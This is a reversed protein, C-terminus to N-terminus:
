KISKYYKDLLNKCEKAIQYSLDPPVANGVQECRQTHSGFFKYDLPFGTITSAERVTICRNEFLHIPFNSHGPVLTPSCKKSDLRMTSGRSYFKSIKLEKPLIDIKKALNEGEKVYKFREVTKSSHMMPLNDKDDISYDIKFLAEGVTKFDEDKTYIPEPYNFNINIDKRVAVIIIRDRKTSSGYWASNLIKTYVKYGIDDYMRLIDDKVSILYKEKKLLSLLEQREKRLTNGKQIIEKTILNTKRANAKFGKYNAIERWLSDVKNKILKPTNNKLIEASM